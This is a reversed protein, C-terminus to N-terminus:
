PRFDPFPCACYWRKSDEDYWWRQPVVMRHVRGNREFYYELELVARAHKLDADPQLGGVEYHTVRLDSYKDLDVVKAQAQEGEPYRTLALAAPLDGWRLAKAYHLASLRLEDGRRNRDMSACSALLLMLLIPFLWRFRM